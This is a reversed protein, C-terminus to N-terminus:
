KKTGVVFCMNELIEGSSVNDFFKWMPLQSIYDYISEPIFQYFRSQKYIVIRLKYNTQPKTM